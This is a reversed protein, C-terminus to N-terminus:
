IKQTRRRRSTGFISKLNIVDINLDDFNNVKIQIATQIAQRMYVNISMFEIFSFDIHDKWRKCRKEVAIDIHLLEIRVHIKTTRAFSFLVPKAFIFTM